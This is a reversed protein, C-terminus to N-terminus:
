DRTLTITSVSGAVVLADTHQRLHPPRFREIRMKKAMRVIVLATVITMSASFVLDLLGQDTANMDFMGFAGLIFLLSNNVVHVAIAAELGGTRWTIWGTVIAFVAIDIQGFLEYGHGWVFFPVPLLIAFVPHKIWTGILQALYGRFVYEEAAAQFPIILVAVAIIVPANPNVPVVQLPEGILISVAASVAMFGIWIAAAVGLCLTLWRWRLRGVVSSLLGVPRARVIRTALFLAPLLLALMFAVNFFVAPDTFNEIQFAADVTSEPFILYALVTLIFYAAGYLGAAVVGVALPRWWRYNRSSRNLRHYALGTPLTTDQISNEQSSTQTSMHDIIATYCSPGCRGM